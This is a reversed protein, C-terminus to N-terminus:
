SFLTYLKLKDILHQKDKFRYKPLLPLELVLSPPSMLMVSRGVIKNDSVTLISKNQAVYSSINYRKGNAADLIRLNEFSITTADVLTKDLDFDLYYSEITTQCKYCLSRLFLTHGELYITLDKINNTKIKNTKHSIFLKLTDQYTTFLDIETHKETVIPNRYSIGGGMIKANLDVVGITFNIANGCSFCPNNYAIFDRVTFKKM